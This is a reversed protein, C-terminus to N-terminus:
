QVSIKRRSLLFSLCDTAGRQASTTYRSCKFCLTWIRFNLFPEDVDKLYNSTDVHKGGRDTELKLPEKTIAHTKRFNTLFGQLHNM